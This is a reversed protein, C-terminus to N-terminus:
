RLKEKASVKDKLLQEKLEDLGNFKVEGRIYHKVHVRLTQGYIDEDFDFINVEIMRKKGDVTPRVGINMMGQFSNMTSPTHNMASGNSDGIQWSRDVMVAYVGNGPILKEESEIHLNATPYGITRGLKNGQIVIGEFFYDYGLFKNATDIDSNLLSERIKTSSVIIENILQEPIEKVTFGLSSAYQDMLHYDGERGKGFRHDYGIIITDPKFYKWLFDKIYEEATQNAFLYNFPVVVLHDIGASALLNIKEDLTNLLKIDGPVSSIIKRPHPHFTIIVTEGGIQAAREKLQEIIQKHGLHVGDFTGITVVANTFLPLTSLEKYVKM